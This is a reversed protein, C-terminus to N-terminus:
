FCFLWMIDCLSTVEKVEKLLKGTRWWGSSTSRLWRGCAPSCSACCSSTVHWVQPVVPVVVGTDRLTLPLYVCACVSWATTASKGLFLFTLLWQLASLTELFEKWKTKEESMVAFQLLCLFFWATTESQVPWIVCRVGLSLTSVKMINSLLGCPVGQYLTDDTYSLFFGTQDLSQSTNLGVPQNICCSM